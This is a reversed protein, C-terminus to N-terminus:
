EPGKGQRAFEHYPIRALEFMSDRTATTFWPFGMRGVLHLAAVDIRFDADCVREDLTVCVVEGFVVHVESCEGGLDGLDVVKHVRCEMHAPAEVISPAAVVRSATVSWPLADLESVGRPFEIAATEIDDRFADTTVNIAFDGTRLANEYSHKLGGDSERLGMTVAVLMPRGTVPMYYSYPAVNPEGHADYTSIMAIPRPAVLQSLVGQCKAAPQEEPLFVRTM